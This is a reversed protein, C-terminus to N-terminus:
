LRLGRKKPKAPQHVETKAEQVAMPKHCLRDNLDKYETYRASMNYVTSHASQISQTSQRGTEDNDLFAYIKQHSKIFPMAKSLNVASNLVTTDQPIEDMGALTLYSLFDMFGEFVLCHPSGNAVTTPSQSTCGKFCASRLVYGGADNPFGVAFYDKGGVSYHVEKCYRRAIDSPIRRELLYDLLAPHSLEKVERINFASQHPASMIIYRSLGQSSSELMTAAQFFSCNNMKMVLDIISGGEATGFDHWLNQEYDVKFSANRDDRFPSHYMGRRDSENVPLIGKDALYQRIEINKIEPLTM